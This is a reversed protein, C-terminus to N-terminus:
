LQRELVYAALLRLQRATTSTGLPELAAVAEDVYRRALAQAYEFSGAEGLISRVEEIEPNQPSRNGTLELLRVRHAADGLAHIVPITYVGSRLDSGIAKGFVQTANLDLLDDIIQFGMGIGYGYRYLAESVEDPAGAMLAGARCCQAIFLATKKGVRDLYREESQGVPDWRSLNQEIEGACMHFVVDAMMRVVRNVGTSGLLSFARAFFYDGALVSIHDGWRANVTPRGRRIEAEDIVDDHVLTAMHILECAVAVTMVGPEAANGTQACTLVLAPRLRKGGARFLHSTVERLEPREEALEAALREEVQRLGASVEDVFLTGESM